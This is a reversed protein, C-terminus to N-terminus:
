MSSIKLVQLALRGLITTRIEPWYTWLRYSKRGGVVAPSAAPFLPLWEEHGKSGIFAKLKIVLAKDHAQDLDSTWRCGEVFQTPFHWFCSIM